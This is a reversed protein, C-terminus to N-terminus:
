DEFEIAGIDYNNKSPIRKGLLDRDGVDLGFLSNLDLGRDILPSDPGPALGGFGQPHLESPLIPGTGPFDSLQPDAYFATFKGGRMEKGTSEAWSELDKYGLFSADGNLNWYLNGEFIEDRLQTGASLFNGTYVFVNNRFHIGPYGDYIWLNGKNPQSNYFTNNYIQCNGLSGAGDNKWIGLSGENQSGDNYSICYRITNNEWPKAAGFEFLGYGIGQNNHSICYQIISGSVGGDLDFGGGDKAMPNTRNHHSVCHQIVFETCDWIWIGVPGNGTWPMDWGNNFAQCYEICGKRVSSALIGNGSHNQLVTPDGPNNEAVCHAIYLNANDYSEEEWITSGSVHIGAFGNDRSHVHTISADSCKFVHIGSHQFGYVELKNLSVGRSNMVLIGDSTNGTKRGKGFMELNELSFFDCSDAYVARGEMGNIRAKGPGSSTIHLGREPNGSDARDLMLTGRFEDGSRFYLTDGASFSHGNVRELSLWAQRMSLGSNQDNGENSVFYALGKEEKVSTCSSLLAPLLIATCLLSRRM